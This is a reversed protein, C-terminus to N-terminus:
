GLPYDGGARRESGGLHRLRYVTYAVLDVGTRAHGDARRSSSAVLAGGGRPAARPCHGGPHALTQSPVEFSILLSVLLWLNLWVSYRSHKM